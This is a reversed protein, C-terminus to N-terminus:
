WRIGEANMKEAAAELDVKLNEEIRVVSEATEKLKQLGNALRDIAFDAQKFKELLGSYLKLLELFSKTHHVRVTKRDSPIRQKRTSM